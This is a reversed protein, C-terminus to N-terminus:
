LAHEWQHLFNAFQRITQNPRQRADHYRQTADQQQIEPDNIEFELFTFFGTMNLADRGARLAETEAYEIWKVRLRPTLWMKADDLKKGQTDYYDVHRLFTEIEDRLAKLQRMDRVNYLQRIDLKPIQPRQTVAGATDARRCKSSPRGPSNRERELLEHVQSNIAWQERSLPAARPGADCRNQIRELKKLTIRRPPSPTRGRGTRTRTGQHTERPGNTNSRGSDEMGSESSRPPARQPETTRSRTVRHTIPNM